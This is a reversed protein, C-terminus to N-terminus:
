LEAKLDRAIARLCVEFDQLNEPNNADSATQEAPM